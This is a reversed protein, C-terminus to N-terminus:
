VGTPKECIVHKGAALCERTVQYNLPIPLSILVAEVDDRRLLDHYDAHYEAMSAGSYGAFHEAKPRSHNAFAAIVFREPMRVLAPWHLQEVALGTGIVGLRVLRPANPRDTM